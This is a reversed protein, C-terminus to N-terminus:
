VKQNLISENEGKFVHWLAETEFPIFPHLFVICELFTKELSHQIDVDGKKLEEKLEELYIDAFRHWIFAHLDGLVQGFKYGNMNKHYNKKVAEFEKELKELTKKKDVQPKLEENEAVKERNEPRNMYIFRGINWLKNGFNRMGIMKEDTLVVDSGEKTEFMLSARLVDAGYTKIVELPNVVNGKSKSMKQGHKDRVLGHLFVTKFPVKGTVHIGLMLMRAVWARLIDHGTEMVSTPYFHNYMENGSTQLTVYPWQGSSFWTDFTDEDQTFLESHCHPCNTPKEISVFWGKAHQCDDNKMDACKYAPIRIGWVIQRSINWDIFNDLIRILDKKFRKPYVEVEGKKVAEIAKQALPKISIFWQEKPLPEIVRKCRYCRGVRHMHKKEEGLLGKDKLSLLVAERAKSITLGAYEGADKTMKGDTGIVQIHLLSHRQGIEWDNHDHAPTVKVAGTGFKIDVSDDAIIQIERGILPVIAYKGILKKYRKDKPNVVIATDGLLTEPRTTAVTISGKEDRLPYDINWLMGERAEYDVELDSFSTGCNVCYNVLKKARYTLGDDFLKKFTTHVIKVINEDMPFKPNEYDLGFGLKQLQDKMINKNQSVFDFIMQFLVNREFDFRSKGEKKLHKEFVFQTEIGAHDTGYMWLTNDGQIKHYRIMIDEYVMMAHGLHLDANANPPPLM